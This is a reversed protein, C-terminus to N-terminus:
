NNKFVYGDYISFEHNFWRLSNEAEWDIADFLWTHGRVQFSHEAFEYMSGYQGCYLRQGTEVFNSQSYLNYGTVLDTMIYARIIEYEYTSHPHSLTSYIIANLKNEFAGAQRLTMTQGSPMPITKDGLRFAYVQTSQDSNRTVEEGAKNLFVFQIERESM